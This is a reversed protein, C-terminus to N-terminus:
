TMAVGTQVTHIEIRHLEIRWHQHQGSSDFWALLRWRYRGPKISTRASLGIAAVCVLALFPLRSACALSPMRLEMPM